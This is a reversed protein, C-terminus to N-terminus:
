FPVNVTLTLLQWDMPKGPHNRLWAWAKGAHFSPAKDAAKLGSVGYALKITSKGVTGTVSAQLYNKGGDAFPEWSGAPHPIGKQRFTYALGTSISDTAKYTLAAHAALTDESDMTLVGVKGTLNDTIVLDSGAYGYFVTKADASGAKGYSAFAAVKSMASKVFGPNMETAYTGWGKLTTVPDEVKYSAEATLDLGALPAGNVKVGVTTDVKKGDHEVSDSYSDVKYDAYPTMTLGYAKYEVEARAKYGKFDLPMDPTPPEATPDGPIVDDANLDAKYAGSVTVKLDEMPTVAVKGTTENWKANAPYDMWFTDGLTLTTPIGVPLEATIGIEAAASEDYDALITGADYSAYCSTFNPGVATYKAWATIPEFKINEIKAMFAVNDNTPAGEFKWPGVKAWLGAGAVTLDAGIGPIKGTVDAGFMLHDLDVPPDGPITGLDCYAGVLGLQFDLPLAYTARGLWATWHKYNISYLNLNLGAIDGKANLAWFTGDEDGTADATEVLGLPDGLSAFQKANDVDNRSFWFAWPKTAYEFYWSGVSIKPNTGGSLTAALPLYAVIADGEKFTLNLNLKGAVQMYNSEWTDYPAETEGRHKYTFTAGYDGSLSLSAASAPIAMAMVLLAIAIITLNKKM